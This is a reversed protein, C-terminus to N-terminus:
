DRPEGGGCGPSCSPGPTFPIPATVTTLATTPTPYTECSDVESPCTGVFCSGGQSIPAVCDRHCSGGVSVTKERFGLVTGRDEAADSTEFSSVTLADLDLKLKRM